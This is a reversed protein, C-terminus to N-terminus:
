LQGSVARALAQTDTALQADAETIAVAYVFRSALVELSAHGDQPGPLVWRSATGIGTPNPWGSVNQHPESNWAQLAIAPTAYPVISLTVNTQFPFYYPPRPTVHQGIWQCSAASGPQDGGPGPGPIQTLAGDQNPVASALTSPRGPLVHTLDITV